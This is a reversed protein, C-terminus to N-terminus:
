ARAGGDPRRERGTLLEKSTEVSWHQETAKAMRRRCMTILATNDRELGMTFHRPGHDHQLWFGRVVMAISVAGGNKLDERVFVDTYRVTDPSIRHTGLWGVIDGERRLILSNVPEIRRAERLPNARPEYWGPQGQRTLIFRVDERTMDRWPTLEYGKPLGNGNRYRDYESRLVEGIAGQWDGKVMLLRPRPKAYEARHLLAAMATAGPLAESWSTSLTRTGARALINEATELLAGGLGQLRHPLTILLSLLTARGHGQEILILGAPTGDETLAGIALIGDKGARALLPRYAPFTMDAFARAQVESLQRLRYSM